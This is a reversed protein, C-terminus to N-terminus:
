GSNISCRFIIITNFSYGSNCQIQLDANDTWLNDQTGLLTRGLFISNGVELANMVHLSNAKTLGNVTLSDIPSGNFTGTAGISGAVGQIGQPGTAGTVGTSGTAGQIGQAGAAGTAGISGSVGQIGQPGTVGQIGQAGTTGTNGTAGTAGTLGTASFISLYTWFSYQTVTASVSCYGWLEVYDGVHLYVLDSVRPNPYSSIDVSSSHNVGNVYIILFGNFSAGGNPYYISGDVHYYGETQATFRSNTTNFENLVDFEKTPLIIKTWTNATLTQTVSNNYVRVKTTTQSYVVSTLVILIFILALQKTFMSLNTQM